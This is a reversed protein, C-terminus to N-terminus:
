IHGQSTVDVQGNIKGNLMNIPGIHCNRLAVSRTATGPLVVGDGIYCRDLQLSHKFTAEPRSITGTVRAGQLKVAGVQGPEVEVAGCLLELLVEARVQRDEGWRTRPPPAQCSRAPM